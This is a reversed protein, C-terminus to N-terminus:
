SGCTSFWQSLYLVFLVPRSLQKLLSFSPVVEDNHQDSKSSAEAEKGELREGRQRQGGKHAAM